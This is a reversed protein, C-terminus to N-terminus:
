GGVAADVLFEAFVPAVAENAVQNPHSDQGTEDALYEDRLMNARDSGDDPNALLDFLDFCRVNPHGSLYTASGMWNAFARANAASAADTAAFAAPPPTVVVFIRDTHQDFVDRMQLYDAQYQALTANDLNEVDVFCSKFAIVYYHDLIQQRANVADAENSTWLYALGDPSTNDTPAGYSTGTDAGEANRLGEASYGHDWFRFTTSHAANYATIWARVGGDIIGQGVSHHLFFLMGAVAGGNGDGDGNGDGNGTPMGPACGVAICVGLGVMACLLVYKTM